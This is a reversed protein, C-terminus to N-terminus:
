VELNVGCQPDGCSCGESPYRHHHLVPPEHRHPAYGRDRLTPLISSDMRRWDGAPLGQSLTSAVALVDPEARMLKGSFKVCGLSEYLLPNSLPDTFGAGAYPWTCWLEPCRTAEGVLGRRIQIDHEILLLDKWEAWLRTLLESYSHDTQGVFIREATPAFRILAAEALPHIATFPVVVRISGGRRRKAPRQPLARGPRPPRPRSAAV